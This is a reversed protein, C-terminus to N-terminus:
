LFKSNENELNICSTLALTIVVCSEPEWHEEEGLLIKLSQLVRATRSVGTCTEQMETFDVDLTVTVTLRDEKIFM